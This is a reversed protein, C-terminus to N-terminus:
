PISLGPMLLLLGAPFCGSLYLLFVFHAALTVVAFIPFLRENNQDGFSAGNFRM